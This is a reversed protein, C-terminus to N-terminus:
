TSVGASCRRGAASRSRMRLGNFSACSSPALVAIRDPLSGAVAMTSYARMACNSSTTTPRAWACDASATPARCRAARRRLERRVDVHDFDARRLPLRRVGRAAIPEALALVIRAAVGLAQAIHPRQQRAERGRQTAVGSSGYKSRALM